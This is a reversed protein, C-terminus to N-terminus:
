MKQIGLDVLHGEFSKTSLAKTSSDILHEGLAIKCMIVESQEVIYRILHYKMEIHKTRKYNIPEKSNSVVECKEGYLTIYYSAALVVQSDMLFKWVWVVEKAIDCTILYEAKMTSDAICIKKWIIDGGGFTFVYDSTQSELPMIQNSFM